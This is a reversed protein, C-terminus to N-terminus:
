VGAAVHHVRDFRFEGFLFGVEGSEDAATDTLLGRAVTETGGLSFGWGGGAALRSSSFGIAESSAWLATVRPSL